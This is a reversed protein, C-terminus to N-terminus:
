VQVLQKSDFSSGKSCLYINLLTNKVYKARKSKSSEIFTLKNHGEEFFHPYIVKCKDTPGNTPRDMSWMKTRLM